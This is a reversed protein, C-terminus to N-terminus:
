EVGAKFWCRPRLGNRDGNKLHCVGATEDSDSLDGTRDCLAGQFATEARCAHDPYKMITEEVPALVRNLLSADADKGTEKAQLFRVADEGAKTSRLCINISERDSFMKKCKRRIERPLKLKRAKKNEPDGRLIEKMCRLNAFYDAQGEVSCWPNTKEKPFGGLHHGIEHCAVFLFSDKTMYRSRLLGGAFLFFAKKKDKAESTMANGDEVDWYLLYEVDYGRAAFVPDYVKRVRDILARFDKETLASQPLSSKQGVIRPRKMFSEMVDPSVPCAISELALILLFFLMKM